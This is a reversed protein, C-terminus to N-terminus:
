GALDEESGVHRARPMGQYIASRGAPAQRMTKKAVARGAGADTLVDVDTWYSDLMTPEQTPGCPVTLQDLLEWLEYDEQTAITGTRAHM